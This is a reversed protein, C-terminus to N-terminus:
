RAGVAVVEPEPLPFLLNSGHFRPNALFFQKFHWPLVLLYDPKRALLEQEPVIPLLTGPTFAGFKDENVEGVAFVDRETISCYQLLVNGKTSAGLAAVTKGESRVQQIFSRLSEKSEAVRKAFALYPELTGLGLQEERELVQQVVPEVAEAVTTKSVTM